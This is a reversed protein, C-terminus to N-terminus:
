KKILKLYSISKLRNTQIFKRLDEKLLEQNIQNYYKKILAFAIYAENKSLFYSALKNYEKLRYLMDIGYTSLEVYNLLEM